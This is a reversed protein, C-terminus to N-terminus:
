QDAPKFIDERENRMFYDSLMAILRSIQRVANQTDANVERSQLRLMLM